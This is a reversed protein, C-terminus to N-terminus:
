GFLYSAGKDDLTLNHEILCKEVSVMYDKKLNKILDCILWTM